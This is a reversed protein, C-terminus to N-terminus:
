LVNFHRLYLFLSPLAAVSQNELRLTSSIGRSSSQFGCGGPGAHHQGLSLSFSQAFESDLHAM